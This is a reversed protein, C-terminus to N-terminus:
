VLHQLGRSRGVVVGMGVVAMGVRVGMRVVMGGRHVVVGMGVMGGGGGSGVLSRHLLGVIAATNADANTDSHADAHAHAAASAAGELALWGAASEMRAM